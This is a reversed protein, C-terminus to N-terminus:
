WQWPWFSGSLYNHTLKSDFLWFHIWSLYKGVFLRTSRVKFSRYRKQKVHWSTSVQPPPLRSRTCATFKRNTDHSLRSFVLSRPRQRLVDDASVRGRCSARQLSSSLHSCTAIRESHARNEWFKMQIIKDEGANRKELPWRRPFTSHSSPHSSLSPTFSLLLSIWQM